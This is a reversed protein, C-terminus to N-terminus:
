RTNTPIRIAATVALAPGAFHVARPMTSLAKRLFWSFFNFTMGGSNYEGGNQPRSAGEEGTCAFAGHAASM